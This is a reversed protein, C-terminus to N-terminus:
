CFGESDFILLLTILNIHIILLLKCFFFLMQKQNLFEFLFTFLSMVNKIVFLIYNEQRNKLFIHLEPERNKQFQPFFKTLWVLTEEWWLLKINLCQSWCLTALLTWSKIVWIFDTTRLYIGWFICRGSVFCPINMKSLDVVLYLVFFFM